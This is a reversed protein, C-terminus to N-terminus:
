ELALEEWAQAPTLEKRLWTKRQESTSGGWVGDEISNVMAYDHCDVVVPCQRCIEVAQKVKGSQGQGPFFISNDKGRCSAEEYFKPRLSQLTTWFEQALFDYYDDIV